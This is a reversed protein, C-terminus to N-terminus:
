NVRKYIIVNTFTQNNETYTSYLKLIKLDLQKITYSFFEDDKIYTITNESKYYYGYKREFTCNVDFKVEEFTQEVYFGIVDKPCGTQNEYNSLYEKGDIVKGEKSYEWAGVISGSTSVSDDDKSCSILSLALVSVFLIFSNKM